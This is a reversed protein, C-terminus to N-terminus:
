YSFTQSTSLWRYHKQVAGIDAAWRLHRNDDAIWDKQRKRANQHLIDIYHALDNPSEECPNNSVAWIFPRGKLDKLINMTASKSVKELHCEDRFVRGWIINPTFDMRVQGPEGWLKSNQFSSPSAM